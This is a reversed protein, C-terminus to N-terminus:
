WTNNKKRIQKGYANTDKNNRNESLKIRKTEHTLNIDYQLLIFTVSWSNQLDKAYLCKILIFVIWVLFSQQSLLFRNNVWITIAQM